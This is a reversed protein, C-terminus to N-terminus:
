TKIMLHYEATSTIILKDSGIRGGEPPIDFLIIPVDEMLIALIHKRMGEDNQPWSTDPLSTDCVLYTM